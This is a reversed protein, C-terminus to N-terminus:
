RAIATKEAKGSAPAQVKVTQGAGIQSSINLVVQDGEALGSEIAVSTGDDHAITVKRFEVASYKDVVAVYQGDARFLLAAAPVEVHARSRLKFEVRVYMGPVLKHDPNALDIEVRLTRSRPDITGATRSVTGKIPGDTRDNFFVDAEVGREMLELATNQPASVFVRLPDDQAVRYLWKTNATSGATVLDGTNIQREVVAGDFPARVQKFETLATLRDVDAQQLAVQAHAATLEADAAAKAAQKDEREQDSVVGKPSDRWREYSTTAFNVKAQNVAVQAISANLKAKAAVLEADLDPTYITALTQGAKVMEGIDVQWRAVYGNVRAYITAEDWAATAGPLVLSEAGSARKAVVTEVRPPEAASLRTAEALRSTAVSRQYYVFLFGALLAVAVIIAVRGLNRGTGRAFRTAPTQGGAEEPPEVYPDLIEHSADM